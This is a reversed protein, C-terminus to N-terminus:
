HFPVIKCISLRETMDPDHCITVTGNIHIHEITSPGYKKPELKTPDFQIVLCENGPQYDHHCRKSNAQRLNEDIIVQRRDCIVQLNTLLPIDLLM